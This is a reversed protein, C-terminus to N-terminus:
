TADRPVFVLELVGNAISRHVITGYRHILDIM